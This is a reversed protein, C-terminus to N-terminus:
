NRRALLAGSARAAAELNLKSTVLEFAPMAVGLSFTCPTARQRAGTGKCWAERPEPYLHITAECGLRAPQLSPADRGKPSSDDAKPLLRAVSPLGRIRVDPRWPTPLSQGM